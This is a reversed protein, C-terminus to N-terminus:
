SPSITRGSGFPIAGGAARALTLWVKSLDCGPHTRLACEALWDAALQGETLLFRARHEDLRVEIRGNRIQADAALGGARLMALTLSLDRRM